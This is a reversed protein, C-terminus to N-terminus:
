LRWTSTPNSNKFLANQYIVGFCVGSM